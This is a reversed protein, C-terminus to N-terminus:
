EEALLIKIVVKLADDIKKKASKELANVNSEAEKQIRGEIEIRKDERQQLLREAEAKAEGVEREILGTVETETQKRIERVKEEAAEIKRRAEQEAEHIRDLDEHAASM